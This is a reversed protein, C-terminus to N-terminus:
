VAPAVLLTPLDTSQVVLERGFELTATTLPIPPSLQSLLTAAEQELISCLDPPTVGSPDPLPPSALSPSYRATLDLTWTQESLSQSGPPPSPGSWPPEPYPLFVVLRGQRDALGVAPFAAGPPRVELLAWSAPRDGTVDWLEARVVAVAGPSERAPTSFLPISDAVRDPPSDLLCDPVFLQRHPLRADFRFDHYRGHRDLVEFTFDAVAPPNDWYAADGTGFEAARLGEFGAAVFAGARNPFATVGREVERVILGDTVSRATVPDWLRIGFPTVRTVTDLVKV